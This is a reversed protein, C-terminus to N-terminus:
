AGSSPSRTPGGTRIFGPSGSLNVTSFLRGLAPEGLMPTMGPSDVVAVHVGVTVGAAVADGVAVAEGVGAAVVLGATVATGKRVDGAGAAVGMGPVVATRCSFASRVFRWVWPRCTSGHPLVTLPWNMALSLTRM